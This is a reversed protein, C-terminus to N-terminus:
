DVGEIVVVSTKIGGRVRVRERLLFMVGELGIMLVRLRRRIRVLLEKGGRGCECKVLMDRGCVCMYICVTTWTSCAGQVNIIGAGGLCTRRTYM